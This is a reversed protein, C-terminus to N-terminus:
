LPEEDLDQLDKLRKMDIDKVCKNFIALPLSKISLDAHNDYSKIQFISIVLIEFNNDKFYNLTVNSKIYEM